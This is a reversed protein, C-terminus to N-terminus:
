NTETKRKISLSVSTSQEIIKDFFWHIEWKGSSIKTNGHFQTPFHFKLSKIKNVLTALQYFLGSLKMKWRFEMPIGLNFTSSHSIWQNKLCFLQVSQKKKIKVTKEFYCDQHLVECLKLIVTKMKMVSKRHNELLNLLLVNLEHSVSLDVTENKLSITSNCKNQIRFSVIRSYDLPTPNCQLIVFALM